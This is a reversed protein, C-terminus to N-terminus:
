NKLWYSHFGNNVVYGNRPVQTLTNYINLYDGIGSVIMMWSVMGVIYKISDNSDFYGLLFFLFPIIGLILNPAICVWLFRIKSICENCYVFLAGENPKIWIEKKFNIPFCVAHIIEHLYLLLLTLIVSLIFYMPKINKFSSVKYMFGISILIILPLSIIFGLLFAKSISNPEKFIKADLPLEKKKLQSEDNFKGMFKINFM